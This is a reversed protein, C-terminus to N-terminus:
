KDTLPNIGNWTGWSDLVSFRAFLEEAYWNEERTKKIVAKHVDNKYAFKEASEMDEWFSVTAQRLFPAEGVGISKLLGSATAIAQSTEPVHQWFRLLKGPRISARTLIAVSSSHENQDRERISFPNIGSWLGHSSKALLSCNWIECNKERYSNIADSNEFFDEAFHDDQWVALLGYRGLDPQLSFGPGSGTGLLKYFLLGKTKNLGSRALGMQQFAWFRSGFPIGFLTFTTFSSAPFIDKHNPAM